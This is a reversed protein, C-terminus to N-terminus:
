KVRNWPTNAGFLLYRAATVPSPLSFCGEDIAIVSSGASESSRRPFILQAIRSFRTNLMSTVTQLCQWPETLIIAHM